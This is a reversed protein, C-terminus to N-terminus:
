KWFLGDHRFEMDVPYQGMVLDIRNKSANKDIFSFINLTGYHIGHQSQEVYHECFPPIFSVIWLFILSATM